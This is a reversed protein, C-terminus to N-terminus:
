AREAEVYVTGGRRLAVEAASAAAAFPLSLAGAALVALRRGPALAQERAEPRRIADYLSPKGPLMGVLGHAWGFVVQGGRLHSVRGVRLGLSRLREELASAPVHVLHRPLDLALWRDGFARAQLSGSDPIAVVLVGGPALLRAAQALAEGPDRLHELSHWFVIAAWDGRARVPRTSWTRGPPWGSSVRRMAAPPASPRSWPATARGWTWCGGPHRWPRCGSSWPPGRAVCCGTGRAPSAAPRPATGAAYARELDEETPWPNTTAVGCRACRVRGALWEANGRDPRSRVVRLERAPLSAAAPSTLLVLRALFLFCRWIAIFENTGFQNTELSNWARELVTPRQTKPGVGDLWNYGSVFNGGPYRMIPVRLRELDAIVDTRFGKADALPSGPEYVGTYVARGLHELFSGFLRRDFPERFRAPRVVVRAPGRAAAAYGISGLWSTALLAAGAQGLQALFKRRPSM